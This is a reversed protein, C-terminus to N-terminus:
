KTVEKYWFVIRDPEQNNSIRLYRQVIHCRRCMPYIEGSSNLLLDFESVICGPEGHCKVASMGLDQDVKDLQNFTEAKAVKNKFNSLTLDVTQQLTNM